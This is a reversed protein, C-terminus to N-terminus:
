DIFYEARKRAQMIEELSLDTGNAGKFMLRDRSGDIHSLSLVHGIEHALTRWDFVTTYDAVAVTNLGGFSVGNIGALTKFLYVNISETERLGSNIIFTRSDRYFLQYEPKSLEVERIETLVLNIDAQQWIIASNNVLARVGVENRLSAFEPPGKFIYVVLPLDLVTADLQSAISKQELQIPTLQYLFFPRISTLYLLALLAIFSIAIVALRKLRDAPTLQYIEDDEIPNQEEYIYKM